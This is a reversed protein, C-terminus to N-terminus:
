HTKGAGILNLRSPFSLLCYIRVRLIVKRRPHLPPPPLELAIGLFQSASSARNKNLGFLFPITFFFPNVKRVLGAITLVVGDTL